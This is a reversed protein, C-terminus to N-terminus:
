ACLERVCMCSERVCVRLERVCLEGVCLKSM